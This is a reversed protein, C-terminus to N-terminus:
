GAKQWILVYGTSDITLALASDPTLSTGEVASERTWGAQNLTGFGNTRQDAPTLIGTLGFAETFAGPTDGYDGRHVLRLEGDIAALALRGDARYDNQLASLKDAFHGVAVM